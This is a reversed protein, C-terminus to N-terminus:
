SHTKRPHLLQDVQTATKRQEDRERRKDKLSKVSKKASHKDHPSKDAM